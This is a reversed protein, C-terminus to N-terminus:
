VGAQEKSGKRPCRVRDVDHAEKPKGPAKNHRKNDGSEEASAAVSAGEKDWVAVCM